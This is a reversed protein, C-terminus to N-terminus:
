GFILKMVRYNTDDVPVSNNCLLVKDSTLIGEINEEKGYSANLYCLNMKCFSSVDGNSNM